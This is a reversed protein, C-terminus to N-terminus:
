LKNINNVEEDIIRRCDAAILKNLRIILRSIDHLKYYENNITQQMRKDVPFDILDIGTVEIFRADRQEWQNKWWKWFMASRTLVNLMIEEDLFHFRIWDEASHMVIEAYQMDTWGMAKMIHQKNTM